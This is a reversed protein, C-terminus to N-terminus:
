APGYLENLYEFFPWKEYGGNLYGDTTSCMSDGNPDRCDLSVDPTGLDLLNDGTVSYDDVRYGMWEAAAEYLWHDSLQSSEWISFQFVHFLEHAITHLDMADPTGGDLEIYASSRTAPYADAYTIGLAGTDSLDFVYIDIRSDGGLTGDSLPAAYGDATEAAYAKEANAAIDGAQTQTIAWAMTDADVTDSQYHVLFHTTGLTNPLDGATPRAALSPHAFAGAAAAVAVLVLLRRFLHM